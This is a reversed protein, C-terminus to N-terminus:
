KKPEYLVKIQDKNGSNVYWNAAEAEGDYLCREGTMQVRQQYGRYGEVYRCYAKSSGEGKGLSANM